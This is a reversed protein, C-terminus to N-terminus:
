QHTQSGFGNMLLHTTDWEMSLEQLLDVQFLFYSPSCLTSFYIVSERGVGSVCLLATPRLQNCIM